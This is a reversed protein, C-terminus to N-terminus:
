IYLFDEKYIIKYQYCVAEGSLSIICLHTAGVWATKQIDPEIAELIEAQLIGTSFAFTGYITMGLYSLVLVVWAWGRDVDPGLLNRLEEEDDGMNDLDKADLDHHLHDPGESWGLESTVDYNRLFDQLTRGGDAIPEKNQGAKDKTLLASVDDSSDDGTEEKVPKTERSAMLKLVADEVARTMEPSGTETQGGAREDISTEQSGEVPREDGSVDMLGVISDLGEQCHSPLTVHCLDHSEGHDPEPHAEEEALKNAGEPVVVEVDEAFTVQKEIKAHLCEGGEKKSPNEESGTGESQVNSEGTVLSESATCDTSENAGSGKGSLQNESFIEGKDSTTGGPCCATSSNSSCNTEPAGQGDCAGYKSQTELNPSTSDTNDMKSEHVDDIFTVTKKELSAETQDHGEPLGRDEATGSKLCSKPEGVVPSEHNPFGNLINETSEM